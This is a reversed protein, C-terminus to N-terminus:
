KRTKQRRPYLLFPAYKKIIIATPSIIIIAAITYIIATTLTDQHVIKLIYKEIIKLITFARLHLIMIPLTIRGWFSIIRSKFIIQSVVVMLTGSLGSIVFLLPNNFQGKETYIDGNLHSSILFFIITIPLIILAKKVNVQKLTPALVSGLHYFLIM